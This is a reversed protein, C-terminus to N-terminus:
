IYAFFLIWLLYLVPGTLDDSFRIRITSRYSPKRLFDSTIHFPTTPLWLIEEGWAENIQLRHHIMSQRKTQFCQTRREETEALWPLLQCTARAKARTSHAWHRITPTRSTRCTGLSSGHACPMRRRWLGMRLSVNITPKASCDSSTKITNNILKYSDWSTM